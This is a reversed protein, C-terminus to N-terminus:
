TVQHSRVACHAIRSQVPLSPDDTMGRDREIDSDDDSEGASSDSDLPRLPPLGAWKEEFHHKLKKGAERVVSGEPNFTFCNNVIQQFDAYVQRPDSYENQELKTKITRLDMPKKIVKYYDPM